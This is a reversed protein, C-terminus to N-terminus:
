GTGEMRAAIVNGVATRTSEDADPWLHSYTDLTTTASAHRLRAQVTKIDAGSAILMSAFYHRLDHFTFTEPLGDVRERADVVVEQLRRQSCSRRYGNTVMTEGGFRQVSASLMLALEKPIPIPASSGETKLPAGGPQQVPLVIGRMFDVDCVRLGVAEGIRLGVFAGLLIAVQLHEPMADHLAWVQEDTACYLKQKGVPPSTRRSCPNAGLLNDHMADDLIQSLRGHIASIYHDSLGATRLASLWSRIQSPRIESLTMHGFEADIHLLHAKAVAVTSARKSGYGALWTASWESVTTRADRPTVHKGAVLAATQQDLWRNAEQKKAFGKAHEGGRDDVYRARWRMGTGHNASPTGDAKTWRDEVGRRSKRM